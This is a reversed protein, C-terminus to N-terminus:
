ARADLFERTRWLLLGNLRGDRYASTVVEIDLYASMGDAIAPAASVAMEVQAALEANSKAYAATKITLDIGLLRPVGDYYHFREYREPSPGPALDYFWLGFVIDPSRRFVRADVICAVQDSQKLVAGGHRVWGRETMAARFRSAFSATVAFEM